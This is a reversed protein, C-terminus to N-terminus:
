KAESQVEPTFVGKKFNKFEITCITDNLLQYEKFYKGLFVIEARSLGSTKMYAPYDTIIEEFQEYNDLDGQTINIIM